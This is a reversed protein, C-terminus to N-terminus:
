PKVEDRVRYADSLGTRAREVALELAQQRAFYEPRLRSGGDANGVREGALPARGQRFATEASVLTHVARGVAKDADDLELRFRKADALEAADVGALYAKAAAQQAPTFSRTDIERTTVDKAGPPPPLQSYSLVGQRDRWEYLRTVTQATASASCCVLLALLLAPRGALSLMLKGWRGTRCVTANSSIQLATFSM